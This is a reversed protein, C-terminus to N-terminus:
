PLKVLIPVHMSILSNQNPIALPCIEATNSLTIQKHCSLPPTNYNLTKNNWYYLTQAVGGLSKLQDNQFMSLMKQPHAHRKPTFRAYINTENKMNHVQENNAKITYISHSNTRLTEKMNYGIKKFSQLGKGRLRFIQMHNPYLERILKIGWGSLPPPCITKGEM